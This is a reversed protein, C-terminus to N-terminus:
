NARVAKNSFPMGINNTKGIYIIIYKIIIIAKHTQETRAFSRNKCIYARNANLLGEVLM